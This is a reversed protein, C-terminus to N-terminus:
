IVSPRSRLEGGTWASMKRPAEMCVSVASAQPARPWEGRSQDRQDIVQMVGLRGLSAQRERRRPQEGAASRCAAGGQPPMRLACLTVSHVAKRRWGGGGGSGGGGSAAALRWVLGGAVASCCGAQGSHAAHGGARRHDLLHARMHGKGAQRWVSHKGECAWRMGAGGRHGCAWAARAAATASTCRRSAVASSRFRSPASRSSTAALCCTRSAPCGTGNNTQCRYRLCSARSSGM